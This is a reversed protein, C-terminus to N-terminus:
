PKARCTQMGAEYQKYLKKDSRIQKTADKFESSIMRSQKCHARYAQLAPVFQKTKFESQALKLLTDVDDKKIEVVKKFQVTASVYDQEEYYLDGMRLQADHHTPFEKAIKTLLKKKEEPGTKIKQVEAFNLLSEVDKPNARVARNCAVFGQDWLAARTYLDCKLPIHSKYDETKQEMVNIVNLADQALHPWFERLISVWQLYVEQDKADLEAAERIVQISKNAHNMKEISTKEVRAMSALARAEWTKTEATAGATGQIHGLLLHASAGDNMELYAEVLMLASASELNKQVPQAVRVLDKWQQKNFYHHILFKASAANQPDKIINNELKAIEDSALDRDLALAPVWLAVVVLIIASKRARAIKKLRSQLIGIFNM